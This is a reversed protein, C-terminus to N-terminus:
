PWFNCQKHSNKINENILEISLTKEPLNPCKLEKPKVTLNNDYVFMPTKYKLTQHSRLNNYFKIYDGIAKQAQAVSELCQLFVSEYKASKWFREIFVNDAWRGKGDMSIKIDNEKLMSVWANSTFQCGQDSNLIEPKAIKLANDLAQLCLNTDLFPSLHWGMIRRSFVDIIAALYVSGHEIKIYTIDIQWVHNPKKIRLGKLLYKHIAHAQNRKSLNPKSYIARLGELQMLKQVKKRSIKYGIKKLEVHIKRYGYFPWEQYIKKIDIVIDVNDKATNNYYIKSRDVFLFKCQRRISIGTNKRGIL